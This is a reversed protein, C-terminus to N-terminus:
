NMNRTSFLVSVSQNVLQRGLLLKVDLREESRHRRVGLGSALLAAASVTVCSRYNVREMRPSPQARGGVNSCSGGGPISQSEQM